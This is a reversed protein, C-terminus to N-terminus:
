GCKEKKLDLNAERAAQDIRNALTEGPENSFAIGDDAFAIFDFNKSKIFDTTELYLNAIWPSLISGQPVGSTPKDVKNGM